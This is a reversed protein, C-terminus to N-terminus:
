IFFNVELSSSTDLCFSIKNQSFFFLFLILSLNNDIKDEKKLSLVEVGFVFLYLSVEGM